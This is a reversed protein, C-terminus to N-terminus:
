YTMPEGDRPDVLLSLASRAHVVTHLERERLVWGAAGAASTVLRQGGAGRYWGSKNGGNDEKDRRTPCMADRFAVRICAFRSNRRPIEGHFHEIVAVRDGRDHDEYNQEIAIESTTKTGGRALWRGAFRQLKRKRECGSRGHRSKQSTLM